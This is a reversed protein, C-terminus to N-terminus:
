STLVNYPPGNAIRLRTYNEEVFVLEHPMYMRLGKAFKGKGTRIYGYVPDTQGDEIPHYTWLQKGAYPIKGQIRYVYM